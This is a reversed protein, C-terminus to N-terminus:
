KIRITRIWSAVNLSSGSNQYCNVYFTDNATLTLITGASLYTPSASIANTGSGSGRVQASSSDQTGSLRVQRNGTSNQAFVAGFLIVYTGASLTVSAGSTWSGSAISAETPENTSRSGISNINGGVTLNGVIAANLPFRVTQTAIDCEIYRSGSSQLTLVYSATSFSDTASVQINYPYSEDLGSPTPNIQNTGSGSYASPTTSTAQTYTSDTTLKYKIKINKSNQNNLSSISWTYNVIGITPTNDDRSVSTIVPTPAHYGYATVSGSKTDTRGRSDTMTISYSITRNSSGSALTDTTFSSGSYTKGDVTTSISSVTAGYANTSVSPISFTLKSKGLVYVSIGSPMSAYGESVSVTGITRKVSQKVFLSINLTTTGLSTNGNYTTCTLTCTGRTANSIQSALSAPVNWTISTSSSKTAITGTASGFAYTITHTYSSNYRTVDITTTDDITAATTGDHLAITSKKASWVAYLTTTQVGSLSYFTYSYTSGASYSASSASSSLAWGAFTYGSRSPTTSSLTITITYPSYEASASRTQSSPAGSGGNADYKVTLTYSNPAPM